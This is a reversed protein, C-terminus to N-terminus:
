RPWPVLMSPVLPQEVLLSLALYQAALVPLSWLVLRSGRRALNAVDEGELACFRLANTLAFIGAWCVGAYLLSWAASLTAGDAVPDLLLWPHWHFRALREEGIMPMIPGLCTCFLRPMACAIVAGLSTASLVHIRLRRSAHRVSLEWGRVCGACVLMTWAGMSCGGVLMAWFYRTVDPALLLDSARSALLWRHGVPSSVTEGPVGCWTSIEPMRHWEVQSAPHESRIRRRPPLHQQERWPDTVCDGAPSPPPGPQTVRWSQAVPMAALTAYYSSGFGAVAVGLGLSAVGFLGILLYRVKLLGNTRARIRGCIVPPPGLGDWPSGSV